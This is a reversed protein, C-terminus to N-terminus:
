NRTASFGKFPDETAAGTQGKLKEDFPRAAADDRPSKNIKIWEEAALKLAPNGSMYMGFVTQGVDMGKNAAATEAAKVQRRAINLEQESVSKKLEFEREFQSAKLGTNAMDVAVGLVELNERRTKDNMQGM